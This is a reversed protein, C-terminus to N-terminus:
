NICLLLEPIGSTDGQLPFGGICNGPFCLCRSSKLQGILGLDMFFLRIAQKIGIVQAETPKKTGKIQKILESAAEALACIAGTVGSGPVEWGACTSVTWIGGAEVWTGAREFGLAGAGSAITAVAWSLDGAGTEVGSALGALEVVGAATGDAGSVGDVAGVALAVV